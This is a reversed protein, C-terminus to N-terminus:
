HTIDSSKIDNISKPKIASIIMVVTLYIMIVYGITWCDHFNNEDVPTFGNTTIMNNYRLPLLKKFWLLSWLCFVSQLLLALLRYLVKHTVIDYLIYFPVICILGLMATISIGGSRDKDEFCSRPQIDIMYYEMYLILVFLLLYFLFKTVHSYKM